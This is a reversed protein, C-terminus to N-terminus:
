GALAGVSPYGGEEVAAEWSASADNTSVRERAFAAWYVVFEGGNDCTCPRGCTTAMSASAHGSDPATIRPASM